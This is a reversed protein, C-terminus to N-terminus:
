VKQKSQNEARVEFHTLIVSLSLHERLLSCKERYQDKQCECPDETYLSGSISERDGRIAKM